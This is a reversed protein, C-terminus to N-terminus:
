SVIACRISLVWEKLAPQDEACLLRIYDEQREFIKQKDQARLAFVFHTPSSRTMQLMTYVDFTALHCLIASRVKSDKAHHIANDMIYCFRKQWKNKKYEIYLWGHKPPYSKQLVALFSNNEEPEWNSAVDIMIEWERLPREIGHGSAYEFMAWNEGPALLGKRKLYQIVTATTLASTLQVVKHNSADNIYIRTTLTRAPPAPTPPQQQQQQQQQQLTPKSRM